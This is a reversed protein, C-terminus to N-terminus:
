DEILEIKALPMKAHLNKVIMNRQEATLNSIKLSYTTIKNIKDNLNDVLTNMRSEFEAKKLTEIEKTQSEKRLQESDKKLQELFKFTNEKTLPKIDHVTVTTNNATNYIDIISMISKFEAEQAEKKLAENEQRIKETEIEQAQILLLKDHKQDILEKIQKLSYTTANLWESPFDKFESHFKGLLSSDVLKEDLLLEIDVKKKLRRKEEFVCIQDKLNLTTKELISTVEKIKIEFDNLPQNYINKISKRQDELNKILKNLNAIDKKVAPIEIDTVVLNKYKITEENAKQILEQNDFKIMAEQFSILSKIEVTELNM